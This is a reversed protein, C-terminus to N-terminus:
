REPDSSVRWAVVKSMIAGGVFNSSRVLVEFFHPPGAPDIGIERLSRSLGAPDVVLEGAAQTSQATTGAILLTSGADTTRPLFVLRAYTRNHQIDDETPYQTAEDRLPSKNRFVIRGDGALECRFNLKDEYLQAWPNSIPSGILIANHDKFDQLQVAHGSRLLLHPAFPSYQRLVLGAIAMERGDTFEYLNWNRALNPPNTEPVGPYSRAIYEDLSIRRHLLSSIQLMGTDSTVIWVDRDDKFLAAFPFSLPGVDLRRRLATERVCWYAALASAILAVVALGLCLRRYRHIVQPLFPDSEITPSAVHEHNSAVVPNEQQRLPFDLAYAGKPMVILVPEDRGETSFYLELRKRLNRAEVRVITDQSGPTRGFVREEIVQERLDVARNTLTCEAVYLLFERLRPSKQFLESRAVREM